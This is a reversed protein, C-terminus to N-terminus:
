TVKVVAPPVSLQSSESRYEYTSSFGPAAGKPCSSASVMRFIYTLTQASEARDWGSVLNQSVEQLLTNEKSSLIIHCMEIILM